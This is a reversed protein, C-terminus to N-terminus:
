HAHKSGRSGTETFCQDSIGKAAAFAKSRIAPIIWFSNQEDFEPLGSGTNFYDNAYKPVRM